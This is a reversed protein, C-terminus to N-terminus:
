LSVKYLEKEARTGAALVLLFLFLSLFSLLSLSSLLLMLKGGQRPYSPVFLFCFFFELEHDSKWLARTKKKHELLLFEM